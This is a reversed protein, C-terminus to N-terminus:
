ILNESLSLSRTNQKVKFRTTCKQGLQCMNGRFLVPWVSKRKKALTLLDLDASQWKSQSAVPESLVSLCSPLLMVDTSSYEFITVACWYPSLIMCIMCMKKSSWACKVDWICYKFQSFKNLHYDLSIKKTPSTIEFVRAEPKMLNGFPQFCYFWLAAFTEQTQFGLSVRASMKSINRSIGCEWTRLKLAVDPWLTKYMRLSTEFSIDRNWNGDDPWRHRNSLTGILNAQVWKYVQTSLPVTLTLHRAWFCLVIDGALARVRVAWEPTLCVLWSAVAGGVLQPSYNLSFVHKESRSQLKVTGCSWRTLMFFIQM